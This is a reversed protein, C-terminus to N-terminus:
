QLFACPVVCSVSSGPGCISINGRLKRRINRALTISNQTSPGSTLPGDMPTFGHSVLRSWCPKYNYLSQTRANDLSMRWYAGATLLLRTRCGGRTRKRASMVEEFVQPDPLPATKGDATVITRQPDRVFPALSPLVAHVFYAASNTALALLLGAPLDTNPAGAIILQTEPDVTAHCATCTIGAKLGGAFCIKMGLPIYGPYKMFRLVAWEPPQRVESCVSPFLNKRSALRKLTEKPGAL